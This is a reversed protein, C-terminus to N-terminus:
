KPSEQQSVIHISHLTGIESQGKGWGTGRPERKGGGAQHWRWRHASTGPDRRECGRGARPRGEAALRPSDGSGHRCWRSKRRNQTISVNKCGSGLTKSHPRAITYLSVTPTALSTVPSPGHRLASVLPQFFSFVSFGPHDLVFRPASIASAVCRGQGLM